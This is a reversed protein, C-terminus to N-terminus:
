NNNNNMSFQRSHKEKHAKVIHEIALLNIQNNRLNNNCEELMVEVLVKNMALFQIGRKILIISLIKKILALLNILM